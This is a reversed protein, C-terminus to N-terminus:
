VFCIYEAYTISQNIYSTSERRSSVSIFPVFIQCSDEDKYNVMAEAIPIQTCPGATHLYRQIRNIIESIEPMAQVADLTVARECLQHWNDSGFAAGYSSDIASLYRSISSSCLPVIYFRIHNVWDPPRVGLLDVYHRLVAGQLWDGGLLLVKITTPPKATNNCSCFLYIDVSNVWFSDCVSGVLKFKSNKFKAWWLWCYPAYKLRIIHHSHRDSHHTWFHHWDSALWVVMHSQHGSSPCWM